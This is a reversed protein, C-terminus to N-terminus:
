FRCQLEHVDEVDKVLFLCFEIYDTTAQKLIKLM